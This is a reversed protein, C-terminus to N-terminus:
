QKPKEFLAPDVKGNINIAEITASQGKWPQGDFTASIKFPLTLGDVTRFDSFEQVFQGFTGEPGRRQYSLSLLRGTASDIALTYSTGELEVAVQEVTAEGVKGSGIAAPKFNASKRARLISLPRRKIEREQDLRAIDNLPQVGNPAATFSESPTIVVAMQRTTAPNNFDPGVRELRLRDPFLLTLNNKIEVESQRRPQLTTSKEQYSTIGDIRAAGGVAAVAKEILAQGQKLAEPTLAAKTNAESRSPLYKEPAADFRKKCEGSGFIYIRGQHVTFLDANGYVPAGMRSCEGNGQIEYRAPDQEFAAKNAANAFFYRFQARTVTISLEGQVEKGQVLMVPDLGELADLPKQQASAQRNFVGSLLLLACVFLVKSVYTKGLM